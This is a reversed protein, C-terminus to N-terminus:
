GDHVDHLGTERTEAVHRRGGVLVGYEALHKVIVYDVLVLKRGRLVKQNCNQKKKLIM